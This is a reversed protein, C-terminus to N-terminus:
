NPEEVVFASPRFVVEDEPVPVGLEFFGPPTNRRIDMAFPAYHTSKSYPIKYAVCGVLVPDYFRRQNWETSGPIEPFMRPQALIEGDELSSGSDYLSVNEFPRVQFTIFGTERTANAARCQESITANINNPTIGVRVRHEVYTSTTPSRGDNSVVIKYIFVTGGVPMASYRYPSALPKGRVIVPGDAVVEVHLYPRDTREIQRTMLSAQIRSTEASREAAKASRDAIDLSRTVAADSDAASSKAFDLGERTLRISERTQQAQDCMMWTGIVATVTLACTFRVTWTSHRRQWDTKDDHDGDKNTRHLGREPEAGTPTPPGDPALQTGEQRGDQPPTDTM